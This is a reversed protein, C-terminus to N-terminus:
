LCYGTYKSENLAIGATNTIATHHSETGFTDFNNVWGM